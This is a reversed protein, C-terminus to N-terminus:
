RFNYKKRFETQSPSYRFYSLQSQIATGIENLGNSRSYTIYYKDYLPSIDKNTVNGKKRIIIDKVIKRLQIGTVVKKAGKAGGMQTQRTGGSSKGM